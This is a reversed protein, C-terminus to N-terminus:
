QSSNPAKKFLFVISGVIGVLFGLPCVFLAIIFFAAHFVGMLYSLVAIHQTIVTLAYFANHLFIFVFFGVASAGTLLLFKKARTETKEKVTLIILALGLLSFIIFPLLFLTSNRFLERFAPIFLECLIVIFIGILAFFISIISKKM